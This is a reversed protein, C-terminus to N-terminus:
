SGKLAAVDAELTEIRTQAEQLAKIAKMYLVSYKVSKISTELLEGDSNKDFVEDVVKPCVTEIEQAVVGIRKDSASETKFNFVRVKVNKIDDWQSGADVINEKLSIDSFGGYSNNLNRSNGNTDIVAKSGVNDSCHLFHRSSTNPAAQTFQIYLGEPNTSSVNQFLQANASARNGFSELKGDLSIRMRETFTAGADATGSPSNHFSWLGSQQGVYSAPGNNNYKWGAGGTYRSNVVTYLNVNSSGWINANGNAFYLSNAQGDTEPVTGLGIDGNSAIRLRESGGTEATITDAAPFRIKTNSDGTHYITDAIDVNGSFTGTTGSVAGSFTTATIIGSSVNIGKSFNVADLGNDAIVNNVRIESM